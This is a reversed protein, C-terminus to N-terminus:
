VIYFRIFQNIFNIYIVIQLIFFKRILRDITTIEKNAIEKKTVHLMSMLWHVPLALNIKAPLENNMVQMM